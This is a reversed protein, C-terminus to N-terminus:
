STTLAARQCCFCCCCCKNISCGLASAAAAARCDLFIFAERDIFLGRRGGWCLWGGDQHYLCIDPSSQPIVAGALSRDRRHALSLCFIRAQSSLQAGGDAALPTPPPPSASIWSWSRFSSFFFAAAGHKSLPQVCTASVCIDEGGLGKESEVRLDCVDAALPRLKAAPLLKPTKRLGDSVCACVCVCVYRYKCRILGQAM